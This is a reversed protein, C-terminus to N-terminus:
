SSGPPKLQVEVEREDRVVRQDILLALQAHQADELVHPEGVKRGDTGPGM